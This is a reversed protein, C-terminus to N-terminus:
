LYQQHKKIVKMIDEVPGRINSARDIGLYFSTKIDNSIYKGNDGRKWM